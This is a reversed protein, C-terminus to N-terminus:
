PAAADGARRAVRRAMWRDVQTLDTFPHGNIIAPRPFNLAADRQWRWITTATVGVYKAL